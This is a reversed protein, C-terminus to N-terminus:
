YIREVKYGRQALLQPLGQAGLLHLVGVGIFCGGPDRLIREISDTMAANRQGLLLRRTFDAIASDGSTLRAHLADLARADAAMWAHMLARADAAAMGELTEKLYRQAAADGMSDFMALQSAASELEAVRVGRAQARALLVSELGYPREFGQEHLELGVLLNAVLWPKFHAVQDLALGRRALAAELARMTGPDLHRRISDGAPYSAHRALADAFGDQRRPDLELVLTRSAALAAEIAPDLQAFAPRGVHVTGFLFGVQEGQSVRFLAGHRAGAAHAACASITLLFLLIRFLM